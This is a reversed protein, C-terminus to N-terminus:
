CIAAKLNASLVLKCLEKRVLAEPKGSLFVSTNRLWIPDEVTRRISAQGSGDCNCATPDVTGKVVVVWQMHRLSGGWCAGWIKWIRMKTCDSKESTLLRAKKLLIRTEFHENWCGWCRGNVSGVDAGSLSLSSNACGWNNLTHCGAM